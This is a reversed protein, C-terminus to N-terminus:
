STWALSLGPGWFLTSATQPGCRFNDKGQVRVCVCACTCVPASMGACVRACVYYVHHLTATPCRERSPATAEARQQVLDCEPCKKQSRALTQLKAPFHGSVRGQSATPVTRATVLEGQCGIILIPAGAAELPSVATAFSTLRTLHFM